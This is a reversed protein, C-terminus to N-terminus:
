EESGIVDTRRTKVRQTFLTNQKMWNEVNNPITSTFQVSAIIRNHQFIDFDYQKAFLYYFYKTLNFTKWTM